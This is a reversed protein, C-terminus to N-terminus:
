KCVATHTSVSFTTQRPQLLRAQSIRSPIIANQRSLFATHPPHTSSPRIRFPTAFSFAQGWNHSITAWSLHSVSTTRIPDPSPLESSPAPTRQIKPSHSEIDPPGLEKLGALQPHGGAVRPVSSCKRGSRRLHRSDHFFYAIHKTIAYSDLDLRFLSRSQELPCIASIESPSLPAKQVQIFHEMAHGWLRAPAAHHPAPSSVQPKARESERDTALSFGRAMWSAGAAMGRPNRKASSGRSAGFYVARAKKSAFAATVVSSCDTLTSEDVGLLGMKEMAPVFAAEWDSLSGGFTTWDSSTTSSNSLNIDSQLSAPASGNATETYFNTDLDDVTSDLATGALNKAASHAGVLAILETTTFGKADFDSIITDAADNAGPMQGTPNATSSDVRGVKFSMTPGLAASVGLATGLQIIDATSVNYQTAMDGLTTCIDVMQSNEGRDSCENALIISGDCASPFCDHFSLRIAARADDTAAGASDVFLAKMDTAVDTWVSPCTTQGAAVACLLSVIAFTSYM